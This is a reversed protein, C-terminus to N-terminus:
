KKEKKIREEAKKTEDASLEFLQDSNLTIDTIFKRDKQNRVTVEFKGKGKEFTADAMLRIDLGQKSTEISRRRAPQFDEVSVISGLKAKFVAFMKKTREKKEPTNFEPGAYFSFDAEDWKSATKTVAEKAFKASSAIRDRVEGITRSVLFFSGGCCLLMIGGVVGAAIVTKKKM